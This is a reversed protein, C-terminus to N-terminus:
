IEKDNIIDFRTNKKTKWRDIEYFMVVGVGVGIVGGVTNGFLDDLEAIGLQINRHPLNEPITARFGSLHSM